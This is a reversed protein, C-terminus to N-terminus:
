VEEQKEEPSGAYNWEMRVTKSTPTFHQLWTQDGTIIHVIFQQAHTHYRQLFTLSCMMRTAKHEESLACPVWHGCDKSYQYVDTVIRQVTGYSMGLQAAIKRLTVRRDGQIM